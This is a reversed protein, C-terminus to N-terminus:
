TDKYGLFELPKAYDLNGLIAEKVMNVIMLRPLNNLKFIRVNKAGLQNGVLISWDMNELHIDKPDM